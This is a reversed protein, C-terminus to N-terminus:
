FAIKLAYTEILAVFHLQRSALEVAVSFMDISPIPATLTTEIIYWIGLLTRTRHNVPAEM